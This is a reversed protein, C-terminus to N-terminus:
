KIVRFLSTPEDFGKLLIDGVKEFAIQNDQSLDRVVQSILIEGPNAESCIRAAEQVAKGFFDGHEEIPEGASIGIRINLPDGPYNTKHRTIGLQIERACKVANSTTIFSAMIGDGTHKVERGKHKRLANRTIANLIHLLHLAKADGYTTTMRTSDVLDTFLIARFATDVHFTDPSTFPMPDNIRGLFTQVISPDVEIIEHPVSGHSEDHAQCIAEKNPAEVLCFATCREEDFWYTLFKVQYKDQVKIDKEHANALSHQTAGEIFHRDIFIPM